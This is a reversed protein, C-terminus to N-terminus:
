TGHYNTNSCREMKRMKKYAEWEPSRWMEWWSGRWKELNRGEAKDRHHEVAYAMFDKRCTECELDDMWLLAEKAYMVFMVNEAGASEMDPPDFPLMAHQLGQNDGIFIDGARIDVGIGLQPFVFEGGSWEGREMVCIVAKGNVANSGDYHVAVQYNNNVTVTTFATGFLNYREDKVSQFRSNLDEFEAPMLERFLGNVEHFFDKQAVFENWRKLTTVTLRGYPLRGSRDIAGMVNSYSMNARPQTTVYKKRAAKAVAARDQAPVWQSEFWREFWALKAANRKALAEARVVPDVNKKRCISDWKEVEEVDIFGDAEARRMYFTNRGPEPSADILRRAEDLDTLPNKARTAKSFFEFQGLTLRIEPNTTIVKGSAMGRQDTKLAKSVWSWYKHNDETLTGGKEVPLTYKLVGKRFVFALTGDPLYVDIDERYLTYDEHKVWAGLWEADPCERVEKLHIQKTM